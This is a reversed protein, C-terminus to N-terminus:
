IATPRGPRSPKWFGSPKAHTAAPYGSMFRCAGASTPLNAAVIRVLRETEADDLTLGKGTTAALILGGIWESTYHSLM